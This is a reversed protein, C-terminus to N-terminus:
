WEGYTPSGVRIDVAVDYVTGVVASVLKAQSHPHLQFHLGRIVGYSSKSLNDQCFKNTIGLSNFTKENYTECFYGRHDGFVKPQVIYLGPIKTEIIEM